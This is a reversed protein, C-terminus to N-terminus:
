ADPFENKPNGGSEADASSVDGVDSRSISKDRLLSVPDMDEASAACSALLPLRFRNIM